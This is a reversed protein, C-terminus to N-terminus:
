RPERQCTGMINNIQNHGEFHSSWSFRFNEEKRSLSIVGITITGTMPRTNDLELRFRGNGNDKKSGGSIPSQWVVGTHLVKTTQTTTDIELEFSRVEHPPWCEAPEITCTVSSDPYCFLKPVAAVIEERSWATPPGPPMTNASAAEGSASLVAASLAALKTLRVRAM